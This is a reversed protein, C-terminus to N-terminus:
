TKEARMAELHPMPLVALPDALDQWPEGRQPIHRQAIPGLRGEALALYPVRPPDLGILRALTADVATLNLGVAVVGLPKAAGLIPGDGEMALIGDVIAITSPLSAAVDVITQPIGAIHLMNKPWGYVVGPLTGFLNKLSATFGAWHHTKLKALSVVLDAQLVERPLFLEALSSCRAANPVRRVESYNLDAFDLRASALARDLGSEGLALETDRLNAPAEGVLVSAGARRFVDAAALVVAPHTTMQPSDRAPEVLNPKLLVRRHRVWSFDFGVAELGDRITRTLSGDYRQGGALFVPQPTRWLRRAMPYGIAGAAILGSGVLFTRRDFAKAAPGPQPLHPQDPPKM